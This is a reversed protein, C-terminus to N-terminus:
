FIFFHNLQQIHLDKNGFLCRQCCFRKWKIRNCKMWRKWASWKIIIQTRMAREYDDITSGFLFHSQWLLLLFFFSHWFNFWQKNNKMADFTSGSSYCRIFTRVSHYIANSLTTFFRLPYIFEFSMAWLENRYFLLLICFFIIFIFILVCKLWHYIADFCLFITMMRGHRRCEANSLLALKWNGTELKKKHKIATVWDNPFIQMFSRMQISFSHSYNLTIPDRTHFPWVMQSVFMVFYLSCESNQRFTLAWVHNEMHHSLINM